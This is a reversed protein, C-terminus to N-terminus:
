CLEILDSVRKSFYFANRKDRYTDLVISIRDDSNLVADRAMQTGIVRKPESDYCIVGIYLNNADHLLTVETKESPSQGNRPERQILDGIKTASKWAPEDLVGDLTIESTITTVIASRAPETSVVQQSAAGGRIPALMCGWLGVTTLLARRGLAYAPIKM